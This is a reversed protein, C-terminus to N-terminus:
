ELLGGERHEVAHFIAEYVSDIEEDLEQYTIGRRDAERMAEDALNTVSLLLDDPPKEPM